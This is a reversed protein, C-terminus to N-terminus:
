EQEDASNDDDNEERGKASGLLSKSMKQDTAASALTVPKKTALNISAAPVPNQEMPANNAATELTTVNNLNLPTGQKANDYALTAEESTAEITATQEPNLAVVTTSVTNAHLYWWTTVSTFFAIAIFFTALRAYYPNAELPFSLSLSASSVPLPDIAVPRPDLKELILALETEPINLLRAYSRLYGRLYIPPLSTQLLNENELMSIFRPSLHLRAAAEQMSLGMNERTAKLKGGFSIIEEETLRDDDQNKDSM